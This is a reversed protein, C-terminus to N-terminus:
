KCLHKEISELFNGSTQAAKYSFNDFLVKLFQGTQDCQNHATAAKRVMICCQFTKTMFLLHSRERRRSKTQIRTFDVWLKTRNLTKFHGGLTLSFTVPSPGFQFRCFGPM